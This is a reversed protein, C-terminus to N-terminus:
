DPISYCINTGMSSQDMAYCVSRIEDITPYLLNLWNKYRLLNPGAPLREARDVAVAARLGHAAAVRLRLWTARLTVNLANDTLCQDM